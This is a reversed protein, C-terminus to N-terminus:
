CFWNESIRKQVGGSKKETCIKIKRLFKSVNAGVVM